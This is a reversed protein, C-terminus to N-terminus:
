KKKRGRVLEKRRQYTGAEKGSTMEERTSKCLPQTGM